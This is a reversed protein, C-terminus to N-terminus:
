AGALLQQGGEAFGPPPNAVSVAAGYLLREHLAQLHEGHGGDLFYDHNIGADDVDTCDIYLARQGLAKDPRHNGLMRGFLAAKKLTGDDLNLTVFADCALADLSAAHGPEAIAPASLVVRQLGPTAAAVAPSLLMRAGLSRMFLVGPLGADRAAQIFLPLVAALAEAGDDANSRATQFNILGAHDGSPWSFLVPECGPYRRRLALGQEVSASMPKNFAHVFLVLSRCQRQVAQDAARRLLARLSADGNDLRLGVSAGQSRVDLAEVALPKPLRDRFVEDLAARTCNAPVDPDHRRLLLTFLPQPDAPLEEPAADLGGQPALWGEADFHVVDTGEVAEFVHRTLTCRRQGADIEAVVFAGPVAKWADGRAAGSALVQVIGTHPLLGSYANRHIDGGVYLVPRAVANVFSRYDPYPLEDDDWAQNSLAYRHSLPSSGAVVLLGNAQSAKQKLWDLQGPGLLRANPHDRATRYFREDLLLTDIGDISLEQQVGREASPPVLINGPLPPYPATADGAQLVGVFQDFLLRAIDRARKPVGHKRDSEPDSGGDDLAEGCANNWAMDHEDWAVLIREAGKDRVVQAVLDRFSSVGWQLAYRRHMETAFKLPGDAESVFIRKWKPTLNWDMYIQDGLLFLADPRQAAMAQWVPQEPHEVADM